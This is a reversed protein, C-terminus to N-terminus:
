SATGALNLSAGSEAEMRKINEGGRGILFGAQGCPSVSTGM